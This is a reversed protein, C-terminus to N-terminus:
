TINIIFFRLEKGNVVIFSVVLKRIGQLASNGFKMWGKRLWCIDLIV